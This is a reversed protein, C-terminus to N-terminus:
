QADELGSYSSRVFTFLVRTNAGISNNPDGLEGIVQAVAEDTANENIEMVGTTGEIDVATYRIAATYTGSCQGEFVETPLAPIYLLTAGAASTTVSEIAVGHILGSTAEAISLLGSAIIVADGAAITQGTTITQSEIIPKNRGSLSKVWRFGNPNDYNAM